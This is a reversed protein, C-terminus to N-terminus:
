MLSGGNIELGEKLMRVSAILLSPLSSELGEEKRM